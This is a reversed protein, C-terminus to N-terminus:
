VDFKFTTEVASARAGFRRCFAQLNTYGAMPLVERFELHVVLCFLTAELFSLDRAPLAELGAPAHEELWALMATLSKRLKAHHASDEGGGGLRGMVLSVETAMAQLAIEQLNALLPVDHDEPWVVRLSRGSRRWFERSINLAGFWSGESTKLVPIRLAPNGGYDGPNSSMLDRVVQFDYPAGLEAAFIRPIRTFHSSSRGILVPRTSAEPAVSM